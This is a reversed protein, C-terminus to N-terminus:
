LVEHLYSGYELSIKAAPTAAATVADAVGDAAFAAGLGALARPLVLKLLLLSAPLTVEHLSLDLTHSLRRWDIM